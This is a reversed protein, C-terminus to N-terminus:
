ARGSAHRRTHFGAGPVVVRGARVSRPPSRAVRDPDARTLMDFAKSVMGNPTLQPVLGKAVQALGPGLSIRLGGVALGCCAELPRDACQCMERLRAISELLPIVEPDFEAVSTEHQAVSDSQAGDQSLERPKGLAEAIGGTHTAGHGVQTVVVPPRASRIM